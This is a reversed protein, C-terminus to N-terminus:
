ARPQIRMDRQTPQKAGESFNTLTPSAGPRRPHFPLQVAHRADLPSLSPSFGLPAQYPPAEQTM